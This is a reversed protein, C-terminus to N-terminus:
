QKRQPTRAIWPSMIRLCSLVCHMRIDKNEQILDRATMISRHDGFKLASLIDGVILNLIYVLCRMYSGVGQFQYIGKEGVTAVPRGIKLKL